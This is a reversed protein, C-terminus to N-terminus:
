THRTFHLYHQTPTVVATDNIHVGLLLQLISQWNIAFRYRFLKWQQFLKNNYEMFINHPLIHSPSHLLLCESWSQWRSHSSLFQIQTRPFSLSNFKDTHVSNLQSGFLGGASELKNMRISLSSGVM